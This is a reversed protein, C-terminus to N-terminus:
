LLLILAGRLQPGTQLWFGCVRAVHLEDATQKLMLVAQENFINIQREGTFDTATANMIYRRVMGESSVGTGVEKYQGASDVEVQVLKLLCDPMVMLGV